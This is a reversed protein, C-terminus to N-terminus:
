GDPVLHHANDIFLIGDKATLLNAALNKSFDNFEVASIAKIDPKGTIGNKFYIKALVDVLRNKGTGTNGLLIMNLNRKNYPFGVKKMNRAAIIERQIMTKLETLGVIKDFDPEFTLQGNGLTVHVPLVAGCCKCYRAVPRNQTHCQTCDM